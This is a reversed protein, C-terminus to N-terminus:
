SAQRSLWETVTRKVTYKYDEIKGENVLKITEITPIDVYSRSDKNFDCGERYLQVILCNNDSVLDRLPQMEEVFGADSCVYIKSMSRAVRYAALRGLMDKGFKAKIAEEALWIQLERYSNDFLVPLPEDKKHEVYEKEDTSLQFMAHVMRKLPESMRFWHIYYDMEYVTRAALDKGSRPPGNFFIIRRHPPENIIDYEKTLAFLDTKNTGELM